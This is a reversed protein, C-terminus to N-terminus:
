RILLNQHVSNQTPLDKIKQFVNERKAMMEDDKEKCAISYTELLPGFQSKVRIMQQNFNQEVAGYLLIDVKNCEQIKSIQLETPKEKKIVAQRFSPNMRSVYPVRQWGLHNALLFATEEMRELLGIVPFHKQASVQVQMLLEQDSIDKYFGDECMTRPQDTRHLDSDESNIAAIWRAQKNYSRPLASIYDDLSVSPDIEQRELYFFYESIVSDIPNRITTFYQCSRGTGRHFPFPCEMFLYKTQDMIPEQETEPYHSCTEQSIQCYERVLRRVSSSGTRVIGLHVYFPKTM